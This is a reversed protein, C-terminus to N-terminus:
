VSYFTDVQVRSVNNRWARETARAIIAIRDGPQLLKVFTRGDDARGKFKHNSPKVTSEEGDGIWVTEHTRKVNSAVVNSHIYWRDTNGEARVDSLRPNYETPFEVSLDVPGAEVKEVWSPVSGEADPRIIVAEFWTRSGLERQDAWGQDCSETVFRVQRIMTKELPPTIMYCWTGNFPESQPSAVHGRYVAMVRTEEWREATVRPWYKAYDLVKDILELPLTNSSLLSNRVSHVDEVTLIHESAPSTADMNNYLFKFFEDM